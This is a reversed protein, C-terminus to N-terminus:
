GHLPEWFIVRNGFPDDIMMERLGWSQDILGPRAFRYGKASIAAHYAGLDDVKIRVSSGPTADGHHESLHLEVDGLELGMYLPSADDFRHEFDVAFGLFGCYFERAKEVDFMRFIPTTNAFTRTM